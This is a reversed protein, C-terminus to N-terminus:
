MAKELKIEATKKEPNLTTPGKSECNRVNGSWRLPRAAKATEL